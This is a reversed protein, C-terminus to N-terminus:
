RYRNMFTSASDSTIRAMSRKMRIHEVVAMMEDPTQSPEPRVPGPQPTSDSNTEYISETTSVPSQLRAHPDEEQQKRANEPESRRYPQAQQVAHGSQVNAPSSQRSSDFAPWAEILDRLEHVTIREAPDKALLRDVVNTLDAPISHPLTRPSDNLIADRAYHAEFAVATSATSADQNSSSTGDSDPAQPPDPRSAPEFPYSTTLMAYLLVGLAWADTAPTPQSRADGDALLEPALYQATGIPSASRAGIVPSRARGSLGYRMGTVERCSGFDILKATGDQTLAVNELKIDAHVVGNESLYCLANVIDRLIRRVVHFPPTGQAAVLDFLDGADCLETVIALPPISPGVADRPSSVTGGIEVDGVADVHLLRVINPHDLRSHVSVERLIAASVRAGKIVKIAAPPSARYVSGTTGTNLESKVLYEGIKVGHM